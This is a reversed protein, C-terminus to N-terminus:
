AITGCPIYRTLSGPLTVKIFHTTTLTKAGIAEIANGTGITTNFEIMEESIDAQDIFLAPIARTTSTQDVKLGMQVDFFGTGQLNALETNTGGYRFSVDQGAGLVLDAGVGDDALALGFNNTASTVKELYAGYATTVTGGTLNNIRLAYHTTITNGTFDNGAIELGSLETITVSSTTGVDANAVEMGIAKTITGSADKIRVGMRGGILGGAAQTLDGSGSDYAFSNFGFGFNATATTGTFESIALLGRKAGASTGYSKVIVLRDRANTIGTLPSADGFHSFVDDDASVRIAGNVKVFGLLAGTGPDLILDTGDGYVESHDGNGYVSKINDAFTVNRPFSYTDGSQAAELRPVSENLAIVERAAM